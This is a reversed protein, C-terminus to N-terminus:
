FTHLLFSPHESAIIMRLHWGTPLQLLWWELNRRMDFVHTFMRKQGTVIVPIKTATVFSNSHTAQFCILYFVFFILKPQGEMSSTRM